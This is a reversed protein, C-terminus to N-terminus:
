AAYWFVALFHFTTGALVFLHWVFHSYRWNASYFAVGATYAIGGYVIWLFGAHPMRLYLPRVAILVLWGMALYLLTSLNPYRVGGVIKLTIGSLAMAWILGFLTWGWPGRLVGLTFPTYTGAILLFIAAHEILRFLHKTDGRPLAHYLTSTLYLLILTAAFVCAGVITAPGGDRVAHAILFPTAILAAILGVGHSISNAIEEGLTEIREIDAPARKAIDADQRGIVLTSKPAISQSSPSTRRPKRRIPPFDLSM